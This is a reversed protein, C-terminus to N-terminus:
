LLALIEDANTDPKVKRMIAQVDFLYGFEGNRKASCAHKKKLIRYYEDEDGCVTSDYIGLFVDGYLMYKSLTEHEIAGDVYDADDLMMIDYFNAGTLAKFEAKLASEDLSEGAERLWEKTIRYLSPLVAYFSCESGNDGWLTVLMDEIGKKKCEKIAPLMMRNLTFKNDPVFGKWCWAGGAFVMKNKFLAHKELMRPVCTDNYSYYDWYILDVGEPVCEVVERPIAVDGDFKEGYYSGNNALRFYMDSWM